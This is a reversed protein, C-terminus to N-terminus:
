TNRIMGCHKDPLYTYFLLQDFSQIISDNKFSYVYVKQVIKVESFMKTSMVGYIILLNTFHSLVSSTCMLNSNETERDIFGQVYM